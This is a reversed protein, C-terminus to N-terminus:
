SRPNRIGHVLHADGREILHNRGRRSVCQHGVDIKYDHSPRVFVLDRIAGAPIEIAAGSKVVQGPKLSPAGSAIVVLQQAQASFAWTMLLIGIFSSIWRVTMM